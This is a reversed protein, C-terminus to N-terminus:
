STRGIEKAANRLQEIADPFVIDGAQIQTTEQAFFVTTFTGAANAATLRGAELLKTLERRYLHEILATDPKLDECSALAIGEFM